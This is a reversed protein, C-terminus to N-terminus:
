FVNICGGAWELTIDDVLCLCNFLLWCTVLLDNGVAVCNKKTAMVFWQDCLLKKVIKFWLQQLSLIWYVCRYCVHWVFTHIILTFCLERYYVDFMIRQLLHWINNDTVFMLCLWKYYVDFMIIQLLHWINKDTIFTM